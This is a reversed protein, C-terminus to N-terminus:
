RDVGARRLARQLVRESPVGAGLWNVSGSGGVVATLPVAEVGVRELVTPELEWTVERVPVGLSEVVARAQACNVCDASTFLVIGPTASLEGLDIPPHRPRQWAALLRVAVIVLVILALILAIRAAM